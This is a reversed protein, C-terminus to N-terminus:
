VTETERPPACYPRPGPAGLPGAAPSAAPLTTQSHRCGERALSPGSDTGRQLGVSSGSRRATGQEYYANLLHEHSQLSSPHPPLKTSPPESRACLLRGAETTSACHIAPLSPPPKSATPGDPGLRLDAGDEAGVGM